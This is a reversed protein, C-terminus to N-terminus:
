GAVSKRFATLAKQNNATSLEHLLTYKYSSKTVQVGILYPEGNISITTRVGKTPLSIFPVKIFSLPHSKTTKSPLNITCM